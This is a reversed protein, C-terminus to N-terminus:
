GMLYNMEKEICDELGNFVNDFYKNYDKDTLLASKHLIENILNSNTNKRLKLYTKLFKEYIEKYPRLLTISKVLFGTEISYMHKNIYKILKTFALSRIENINKQLSIKLGEKELHM